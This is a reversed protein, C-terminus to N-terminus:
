GSIHYCFLPRCAIFISCYLQVTVRLLRGGLETLLRLTRSRSTVLAQDKLFDPPVARNRTRSM